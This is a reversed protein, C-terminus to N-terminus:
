NNRIKHYATNGLEGILIHKGFRTEKKDETNQETQEVAFLWMVKWLIRFACLNEKLLWNASVNKVDFLAVIM